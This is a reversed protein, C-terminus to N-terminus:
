KICSGRFDYELEDSSLLPKLDDELTNVASRPRLIYTTKSQYVPGQNSTWIYTGILVIGLSAALIWWRKILIQLYTKIQM